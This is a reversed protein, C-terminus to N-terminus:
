SVGVVAQLWPFRRLQPPSLSTRIFRVGISVVPAMQTVCQIGVCLLSLRPRKRQCPLRVRPTVPAIAQGVATWLLLAVGVLLTFRALDAPTRLQTWALRVGFRRGTADRLPEEVALRREDLAVIDGLPDPRDTAVV